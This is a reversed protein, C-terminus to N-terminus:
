RSLPLRQRRAVSIPTPVTTLMSTARNRFSPNSTPDDCVSHLLTLVDAGFSTTTRTSESMAADAARPPFILITALMLDLPPTPPTTPSMTPLQSSILVECRHMRAPHTPSFISPASTASGCSAAFTGMGGLSLPVLSSLTDSSCVWHYM